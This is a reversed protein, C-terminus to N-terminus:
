GTGKRNKSSLSISPSSLYRAPMLHSSPFVARARAGTSLGRYLGELHLGGPAPGWSCAGLQLGGPVPGLRLGGLAPQCTCAGWTHTELHPAGQHLSDRLLGQAISGWAELFHRSRQTWLGTPSQAAEVHPHSSSHCAPSFPEPRRPLVREGGGSSHARQSAGPLTLWVARPSLPSVGPAPSEPQGDRFATGTM